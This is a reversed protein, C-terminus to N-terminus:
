AVATFYANGKPIDCVVMVEVDITGTDARDGGEVKRQNHPGNITFNGDPGFAVTWTSPDLAVAHSDPISPDWYLYVFQNGTAIRVIERKFGFEPFEPIGNAFLTYGEAKAEAKAKRFLRDGLGIVQVGLGYKKMGLTYNCEDILDYFSGTYPDTVYNGRFESNVTLARDVGGYTNDSHLAYPISHLHDWVTADEDTPYGQEGNIGWLEDNLRECTASERDKIEADYVAGVAKAAQGETSAGAKATRIESHPVKFPMSLQHFKFRPQKYRGLPKNTTDWEPVAPDNDYDTTAKADAKSAKTVKTIPLYEREALLKERNISGRGSVMPKSRPDTRPRGLGFPGDKDGNLAFFLEFTPLIQTLTNGVRTGSKKQLFINLKERVQASDAM